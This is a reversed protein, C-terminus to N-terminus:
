YNVYLTRSASYNDPTVDAVDLGANITHSQEFATGVGTGTGGSSALELDYGITEASVAGTMNGTTTTAATTSSFSLTYSVGKSCRVKATGSATETGDIEDDDSFAIDAVAIKCVANVKVKVDFSDNSQAAYASPISAAAVAAAAAIIQAFKNM